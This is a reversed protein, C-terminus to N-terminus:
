ATTIWRDHQQTAERGRDRHLLEQLKKIIPHNSNFQWGMPKLERVPWVGLRTNSIFLADADRLDNLGAQVMRLPLPSLRLLADRTTGSLCGCDLSPTFITENKLWFVNASATECVYGNTSLQLAEDCHNDQAEMLALTSGIGQSLKHNVPLAQLPMRASNSLWLTFPAKPLDLPPLYEMVWSIPMSPPHPLYGRSGSGRSVSLRLFGTTAKNKKILQRAHLAWDVDGSKIRLAALGAAMRAMHVDWQYPIGNELRITEFVGDGFRFGRDTVPLAARHALVMRGNLCTYFHTMPKGYLTTQTM